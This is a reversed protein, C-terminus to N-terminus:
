GIQVASLICGSTYQRYMLKQWVGAEQHGVSQKHAGSHWHIQTQMYLMAYM